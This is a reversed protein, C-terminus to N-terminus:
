EKSLDADLIIIAMIEHDHTQPFLPPGKRAEAHVVITTPFFALTSPDVIEVCLASTLYIKPSGGGNHVYPDQEVIYTAKM